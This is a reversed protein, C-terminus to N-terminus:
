FYYRFNFQVWTNGITEMGCEYPDYKIPNPRYPRAGIRTGLWSILLVSTPLVVAAITLMLVLGYQRLYDDM